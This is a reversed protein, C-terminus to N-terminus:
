TKEKAASGADKDDDGPAPKKPKQKEAWAALVTKRDETPEIVFGKLDKLDSNEIVKIAGPASMGQSPSVPDSKADEAEAQGSEYPEVHLGEAETETLLISDGPKYRKKNRKIPSTVRYKQEKADSM